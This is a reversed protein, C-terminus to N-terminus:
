VALLASVARVVDLMDSQLLPDTAPVVAKPEALQLAPTSAANKAPATAAPPAPPTSDPVTLATKSLYPSEMSLLKRM